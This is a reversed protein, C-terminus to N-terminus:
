SNVRLPYAALEGLRTWNSAGIVERVDAVFAHLTALDNVGVLDPDCTEEDGPAGAGVLVLLVAALSTVAVGQSVGAPDGSM